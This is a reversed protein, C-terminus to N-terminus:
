PRATTPRATSSSRSRVEALADKGASVAQVQYDALSGKIGVANDIAKFVSEVTGNSFSKGRKVRGRM